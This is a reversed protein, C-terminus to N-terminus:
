NREHHERSTSATGVYEPSMHNSKRVHLLHNPISAIVPFGTAIELDEQRHFSTDMQERLIVLGIGLGLGAVLGLLIIRPRNPKIPKTPLQPPDIMRFQEGKQRKELNESIRASLRKSLLSQYSSKTNEYDRQLRMLEQERLPAQDVRMEYLAIKESLTEEKDLLKQLDMEIIRLSKRGEHSMAEFESPSSTTPKQSLRTVVREIEQQTLIVDPYNDKYRSKLDALRQRLQVLQVGLSGSAGSFPNGSALEKKLVAKQSKSEKISRRTTDIDLQLRDLTRLNATLQSPLEGKYKNRYEGVKREHDELSKRTRQLELELFESTDEIFKERVELNAEIFNSALRETVLMAIQPDGHKFSLTFADIDSRAGVTDILINERMERIIEEQTKPNQKQPFGLRARIKQVLTQPQDSPKVKGIGFEEVVKQLLSRSLIQQRITSLWSRASGTMVPRVYETPVRQPEVLILSNAEYVDPLSNAVLFSVSFAILSTIILWWKRRLGIELINTLIKHLDEGM